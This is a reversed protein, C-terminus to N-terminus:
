REDGTRNEVTWRECDGGGGGGRPLKGNPFPQTRMFNGRLGRERARKLATWEFRHVLDSLSPLPPPPMTLRTRVITPDLRSELSNVLRPGAVTGRIIERLVTPGRDFRCVAAM